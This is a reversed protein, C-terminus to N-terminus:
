NTVQEFTQPAPSIVRFGEAEVEVIALGREAIGDPRFRFVGDIGAFGSLSTIASPSFDIGTPAKTLAVALAVADYALTAIRPPRRGYIQEFRGLFAASQAPPPAAFWGGVLSPERGLNPEEWLATGIFRVKDPDIDYFALLPALRRLTAGGEPILVSDFPLGGLTEM